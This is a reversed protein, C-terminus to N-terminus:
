RVAQRTMLPSDLLVAVMRDGLVEHAIAALLASDVGGSYAVLLSGRERIRERLDEAKHRLKKRSIGVAV